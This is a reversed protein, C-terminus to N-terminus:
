ISFLLAGITGQMRQQSKPCSAGCHRRTSVNEASILEHDQRRQSSQPRIAKGIHNLRVKARMQPLNEEGGGDLSRALALLELAEQLPM